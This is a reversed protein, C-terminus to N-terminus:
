LWEPLPMKNIVESSVWDIKEEPVGYMKLEKRVEEAINENLIAIVIVDYEKKLVSDYLDIKGNEKRYIDARKDTWGSLTLGETIDIYNEIVQGFGGAGYVFISDGKKVKSFPPLVMCSDIMSYGKLFLIFFMYQKLQGQMKNQNGLAEKLIDYIAVFNKKEIEGRKKVISGERQRYHYSTRKSIYISDAEMICPFSCAVDEGFSVYNPVDFLHKILLKREIFKDCLHPLVKWQFFVNDMMINGKISQLEIGSYRGEAIRNLIVKQYTDYEEICGFAFISPYGSRECQLLIEQYVKGDIWDDGDVFTIYRGRASKVGAKRASVLGANEKHIVYVGKYLSAYEDCISACKDESGDDVLIVEVNDNVSDCVSDLCQRLYKEVNYIPVIISLKIDNKM